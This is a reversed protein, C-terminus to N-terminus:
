LVPHIADLGINRFKNPSEVESKSCLRPIICNIIRCIGSILPPDRATEPYGSLTSWVWSGLGAGAPHLTYRPVQALIHACTCCLSALGPRAASTLSWRRVRSVASSALQWGLSGPGPEQAALSAASLLSFSSAAHRRSAEAVSAPTLLDVPVRLEAEPCLSAAQLM